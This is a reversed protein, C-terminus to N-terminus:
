EGSDLEREGRSGGGSARDREIMEHSDGGPIQPEDAGAGSVPAEVDGHREDTGLNRASPHGLSKLKMQASAPDMGDERLERIKEREYDEAEWGEPGKSEDGV